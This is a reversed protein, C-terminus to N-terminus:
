VTEWLEEKDRSESECNEAHRLYVRNTVLQQGCTKLQQQTSSIETKMIADCSSILRTLDEVNSKNQSAKSFSNACEQGQASVAGKHEKARREASKLAEIAGTLSPLDQIEPRDMADTFNTSTPRDTTSQGTLRHIGTIFQSVDLLSNMVLKLHQNQFIHFTKLSQERSQLQALNSTLEKTAIDLEQHRQHISWLDIGELVTVATSQSSPAMSM